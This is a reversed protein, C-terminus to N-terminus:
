LVRMAMNDVSRTTGLLFFAPALCRCDSFVLTLGFIICCCLIHFGVLSRTREHLRALSRPFICCFTFEFFVIRM